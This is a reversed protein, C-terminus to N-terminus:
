CKLASMEIITQAKAPAFSGAIMLFTLLVSRALGNATTNM